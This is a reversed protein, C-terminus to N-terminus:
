PLAEDLELFFLFLLASLPPASRAYPMTVEPSNRSPRTVRKRRLRNSTCAIPTKSTAYSIRVTSCSADGGGTHVPVTRIDSALM